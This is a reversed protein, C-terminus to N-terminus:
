KRNEMSNLLDRAEELLTIAVLYVEKANKEEYNHSTKNRAERFKFWMEPNRIYGSEAGERILERFSMKDYIESNASELELQRKLMKWSLEYSYEFRQIVADRIEEDSKDAEARIIAKEFNVLARKLSSFDLAM